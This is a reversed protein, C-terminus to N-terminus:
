LNAKNKNARSLLTMELFLFHHIFLLDACYNHAALKQLYFWLSKRHGESAIENEDRLQFQKRYNEFNATM